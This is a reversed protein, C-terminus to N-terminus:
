ALDRAIMADRAVKAHKTATPSFEM